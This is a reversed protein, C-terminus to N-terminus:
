KGFTRWVGLMYVPRVPLSAASVVRMIASIHFASGVSYLVMPGGSFSGLALSNGTVLGGDGTVLISWRGDEFLIRALGTRISAIKPTQDVTSFSYTKDAVKAAFSVWAAGMPPDAYHDYSIGAGTAYSPQFGTQGWCSAAALVLILIRQVMSVDTQRVLRGGCSRGYAAV